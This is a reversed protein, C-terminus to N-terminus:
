DIEHQTLKAAVAEVREAAQDLAEAKDDYAKCRQDEGGRPICYRANRRQYEASTRLRQALGSVLYLAPHEPTRSRRTM